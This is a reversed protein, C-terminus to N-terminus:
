QRYVDTLGLTETYARLIREVTDDDLVHPKTCGEEVTALMRQAYALSANIMDAFLPLMSLPQWNPTRTEIM